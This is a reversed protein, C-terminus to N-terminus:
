SHNYCNQGKITEFLRNEICKRYMESLYIDVPTLQQVDLFIYPSSIYIFSYFHINYPYAAPQTLLSAMLEEFCPPPSYM